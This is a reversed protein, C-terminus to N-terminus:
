VFQVGLAVHLLPFIPTTGAVTFRVRVNSGQPIRVPAAITSVAHAKWVLATWTNGNQATGTHIAIADAFNGDSNPDYDVIILATEDTTTFDAATEVMSYLEQVFGPRPMVFYETQSTTVSAQSGDLQGPEILSRVNSM